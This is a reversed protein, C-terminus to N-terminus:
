GCVESIEPCNKAVKSKRLRRLLVKGIIEDLNIIKDDTFIFHGQFHIHQWAVPSIKKLMSLAKEDGEAEYKQKLKSLIASNYHIIANAILRGCQNSIEIERDGKGSLQKKGYATAIAARLQHYSEVRNQSRHIDRQLKRDQLYKLTYISRILKDYELIAKRTRNDTTYTCLKKVLVSQTIEKLGLAKIIPVINSWEDEILQRDIKGVPKILWDNYQDLDDGCYLHKLQSQLNTFRPCLRGGFWDMIAFNTKNIIHMDGTIASPMISSTNNYWIDFAFYSEHEHAGILETQLPIHNVLLTYAVVGKGKKFYKKSRRAKLTPKEVEYKQGDVGGYLIAMDLSYYPFIPMQAIDDGIIDNAKKLTQLRMRSQYIDLLRDYPIDSIEAMNLNGNNFAQAIIVANLSNEDVCVKGYRPQIHTFISAYRCRENVFRLVDTIDCLPLQDYFRDQLEEDGEARSKKLHITNTKEDYHLHKLKGQRFDSTFRLWETHLEAIRDDLLKKIPDRLAPITSLTVLGSM